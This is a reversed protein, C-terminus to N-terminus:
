LEFNIVHNTLARLAALQWALIAELPDTSGRSLFRLILVPTTFRYATYHWPKAHVQLIELFYPVTHMIKEFQPAIRQHCIGAHM